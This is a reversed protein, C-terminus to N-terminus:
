LEMFKNHYEILRPLPDQIVEVLEVGHANASAMLIEKFHYAVSGM